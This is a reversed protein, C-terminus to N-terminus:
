QQEQVERARTVLNRRWKEILWGGFVLVLGSTIFIIALSTYGWFDMVFGIYRSLIDLVFFSIGLNIIKTMKYMSGYGIVALILLLFVINSFIWIVWLGLPAEKGSFYSRPYWKCNDDSLCSARNNSFASCGSNGYPDALYEEKVSSCYGNDITQNSYYDKYSNNTWTCTLKANGSECSTKNDYNYCSIERCSNEMWECGTGESLLSCENASTADYCSKQYCDGVTGSVAATMLILVLMGAVVLIFILIEKGDIKQNGICLVIGFIFVVGAVLSLVLLFILPTGPFSLGEPWLLPLLSQFSLIYAFILFFFMTWWQYVRSFKHERSKHLLSMGYLLIGLVVYILALMGVGLSSSRGFSGFINLFSFYQFAIWQSFEIMGVVLSGSSDFIYSAIIVGIWSILLLNTSGQLSASLNFIQAILFVSLTFMLSGLIVLSKGIGSYGNVRFMVGATYAAATIIVLIFIKLFSPIVHWNQAILWAFGLAILISGIIAVITGFSAGRKNHFEQGFEKKLQSSVSKKKM